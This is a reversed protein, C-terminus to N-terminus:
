QEIFFINVNASIAAVLLILLTNPPLCRYSYANSIALVTLKTFLSYAFQLFNPYAESIGVNLDM